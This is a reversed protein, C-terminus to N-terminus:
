ETSELDDEGFIFAVPETIYFPGQSFDDSRIQFRFSLEEISRFEYDLFAQQDLYLYLYDRKNGRPYSQFGSFVQIGNVKMEEELVSRGEEQKNEIYVWLLPLAPDFVAGPGSFGDAIRVVIKMDEDDHVSIGDVDYTQVYDPDADTMIKLSEAEVLPIKTKSDSIHLSLEIEQIKSILARDLAEKPFIMDVIASNGPLIRSYPNEEELGEWPSFHPRIM